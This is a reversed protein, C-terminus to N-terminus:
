AFSWSSIVTWGHESLVAKAPISWPHKSLEAAVQKALEENAYIM